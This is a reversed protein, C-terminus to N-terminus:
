GRSFSQKFCSTFTTISEITDGDKLSGKEALHVLYKWKGYTEQEKFNSTSITKGNVKVVTNMDCIVGKGGIKYYTYIFDYYGNKVKLQAGCADSVGACRKTAPDSIYTTGEPVEEARLLFQGGHSASAAPMVGMTAVIAMLIVASLMTTKNIRTM